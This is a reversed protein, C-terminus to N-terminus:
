RVVHVYDHRLLKNKEGGGVSHVRVPGTGCLSAPPVVADKVPLAGM